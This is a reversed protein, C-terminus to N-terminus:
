YGKLFRDLDDYVFLKTDVLGDLAESLLKEGLEESRQVSSVKGNKLRSSSAPKLDPCPGGRPGVKAFMNM